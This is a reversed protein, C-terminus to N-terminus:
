PGDGSSDANPPIDRSEELLRQRIREFAQESIHHVIPKAVRGVTKDLLRNHLHYEITLRVRTGGRAPSLRYRGTNRIGSRSEWKLGHPPDEEVIAVDWHFHMGNAHVTWRYTRDDLPVVSQVADAYRPFEDVRRILAYVKEPEAPFRMDHEIVPM